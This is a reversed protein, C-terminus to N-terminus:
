CWLNKVTVTHTATATSLKRVGSECIKSTSTWYANCRQLRILAFVCISAVNTSHNTSQFTFCSNSTYIVSAVDEKKQRQIACAPRPMWSKSSTHQSPQLQPTWAEIGCRRHGDMEQIFGPIPMPMRKTKRKKNWELPSHPSCSFCSSVFATYIDTCLTMWFSSPCLRHTISGKSSANVSQGQSM